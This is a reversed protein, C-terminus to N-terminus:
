NQITLAREKTRGLEKLNGTKRCGMESKSNNELSNSLDRLSHKTSDTDIKDM